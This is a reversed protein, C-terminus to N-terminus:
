KGSGYEILLDVDAIVLRCDGAGSGGLWFTGFWALCDVRDRLGVDNRYM